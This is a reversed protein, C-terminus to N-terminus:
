VIIENDYEKWDFFGTSKYIPKETKITIIGEKREKKLKIMYKRRCGLSCHKQTARQPTFQKECNVCNKM